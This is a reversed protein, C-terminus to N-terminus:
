AGKLCSRLMWEHKKHIDIRGALFDVLGQKNEKSALVFSTNLCELVAANDSLAATLMEKVQDGKLNSDAITADRYLENIGLPAYQDLARIEEALPDIAGHLDEYLDGFFSHYTPFNIGEINWHFSHAKFYFVFTNALCKRMSVVLDM